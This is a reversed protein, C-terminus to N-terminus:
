QYKRKVNLIREVREKGKETLVILALDSTSIWDESPDVLKERGWYDMFHLNICRKQVLRVVSRRYGVMASQYKKGAWYTRSLREDEYGTADHGKTKRMESPMDKAQPVGFYNFLVEDKCLANDEMERCRDKLNSVVELYERSEDRYSGRKVEEGDPGQLVWSFERDIGRHAVWGEPPRGLVTKLYCHVLMWREVRGLREPRVSIDLDKRM